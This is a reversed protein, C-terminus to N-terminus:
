EGASERRETEELEALIHQYSEWRSPALTGAEAAARVACDPEDRHSCNRYACQGVLDKMERFYFTLEQPATGFLGFNRIGPTDLVHGGGPLAILQTHTTTHKGTRIKGLSGVRLDLGPELTNLLSSKGAGSLGTLVSVNTRLLERVEALSDTTEKGPAISTCLVRYGLGEYLARWADATNRKDRDLKTLVVCAEIGERASAALIRDILLPQLPPERLASVIMALDVNAAIVQAREDEGAGRRALTTRRPLVEEIAGTGDGGSGVRGIKVRDGVAVPRKEHSREEFLRGALPLLM